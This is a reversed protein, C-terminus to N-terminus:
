FKYDYSLGFTVGRYYSYRLLDGQVARYEANLINAVTFKLQGFSGLGKKAVFDLRGVPEEYTDDLGQSGTRIIRRGSINYLLTISTTIKENEYSLGANVVYPSQGQLPRNPNTYAGGNAFAKEAPLNVESKIYSYNGFLSFDSLAKAVFDFSKRAEIEIGAVYAKDVNSFTIITDTSPQEIVEIPNKMDKYFGSLALVESASPFWELRLDYNKIEAQQLDKNGKLTDAGAVGLFLFPTMERFDPRSVNMSFATRLNIDPTIAYILNASPAVNQTPLVVNTPQGQSFIDYNKVTIRSQEYRAGGVFRLAPVIPMDIQGYGAGIVQNADYSDNAGTIEQLALGNTPAINGPSMVDNINGNLASAAVGNAIYTFRRAKSGRERYSVFGGLTLTSKLGGWQHFPIALEPQFDITQDLHNAYVRSPSDERILLTQSGDTQTLQTYTRYDPQSYTARSYSTKWTFKSDLLWPLAHEGSLQNFWLNYTQFRIRVDRIQQPSYDPHYGKTEQVQDETNSSFFTNYKIKSHKAPALTLGLLAGKSTSYTSIDQKYDLKVAKSPFYVKYTKQSINESSERMLGAAIVGLSVTDSFKYTNGFSAQIGGPVIGKNYNIDWTRPFSEGLQEMQSPTYGQPYFANALTIKRGSEPIASPLSRTGDDIGLFDLKGGQSALFTKGTTATNYGTSLSIKAEREEPYDKSNIQVLGGSFEAPMDVTYTKSIILNDLLATPFIDLPVIRKDPNPSPITSGNYQVSSYREGLGRVFVYKGDIVTIGTVRKAAEGADSDPSKSIQEASIADQAAAAKKRKSLLAASTNDIRKATVVVEKSVQYNMTVNSRAAKGPAVNVQTAATQYGQIQYTVTQAGPPVNTIVYSGDIDTVAFLNLEKVVATVGIMPEGNASDIVKGRISGAPGAVAAVAPAAKKPAAFLGGQISYLAIACLGMAGALRKLNSKHSNRLM